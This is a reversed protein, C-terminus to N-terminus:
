AEFLHRQPDMDDKIIRMVYVVEEFELTYFVVHRPRGIRTGSRRKSLSIHYSRVEPGFEPHTRSAPRAADECLDRLAQGLLRDYADAQEFDYRRATYSWIDDRDVTAAPSLRLQRRM